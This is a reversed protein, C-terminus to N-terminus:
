GHAPRCVEEHTLRYESAVNQLEAKTAAQENVSSKRRAPWSRQWVTLRPSPMCHYHRARAYMADGVERLSAVLAEAQAQTFGHAEFHRLVKLTDFSPTHMLNALM